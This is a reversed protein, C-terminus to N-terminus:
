SEAEAFKDAFEARLEAVLAPDTVEKYDNEPRPVQQTDSTFRETATTTTRKKQGEGQGMQHFEPHFLGDDPHRKDLLSQGYTTTIKQCKTYEALMVMIPDNFEELTERQVDKIDFGLSRLAGLKQTSSDVDFRDVLDEEPMITYQKRVKNVRLLRNYETIIDHRLVEQRDAFWVVALHIINEDLPFGTLEMDATVPICNFEDYAPGILEHHKLLPWQADFVPFMSFVDRAAYYLMDKTFKDGDRFKIFEERTDKSMLYHPPYESVQDRLGVKVGPLGATLLQKALMTDYMNVLPFGYKMMIFEFDHIINQGILLRKDSQLQPKFEPLLDPEIVYVLDRTGYQVLLIKSTKSIPDLGDGTKSGGTETDLGQYAEHDFWEKIPDLQELHSIEVRQEPTFAGPVFMGDLWERRGVIKYDFHIPTEILECPPATSIIRM